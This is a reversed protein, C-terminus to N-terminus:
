KTELKLVKRRLYLSRFSKRRLYVLTALEKERMESVTVFGVVKGM